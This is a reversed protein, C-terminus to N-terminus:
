PPKQTNKPKGKTEGRPLISTSGVGARVELNKINKVIQDLSISNREPIRVEFSVDKRVLAKVPNAAHLLELEYVSLIGGDL